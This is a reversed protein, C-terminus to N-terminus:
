RLVSMSGVISLGSRQHVLGSMRASYGLRERMAIEYRVMGGVDTATSRSKLLPRIRMECRRFPSEAADIRANNHRLLQLTKPKILSSSMRDTVRSSGDLSARSSSSSTHPNECGCSPIAKKTYYNCSILHSNTNAM